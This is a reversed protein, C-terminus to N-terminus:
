LPRPVSFGRYEKLLAHLACSIAEVQQAMPIAPPVELIFRFPGPQQEPPASLSGEGGGAGPTHLAVIGDFCQQRLEAELIRVEPQASGRWFERNLDRGARNHATDDEYGTPNCLPYVSLEYGAALVPEAVLLDLLRGLGLAGALENGHLLAFLGVRVPAAGASPGHFVFRPITYRKADVEFAGAVTGVVDRCIEALALFPWYLRRLKHPYVSDDANPTTM